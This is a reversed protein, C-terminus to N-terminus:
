ASVTHLGFFPLGKNRRWENMQQALFSASNVKDADAESLPKTRYNYAPDAVTDAFISVASATDGKRLAAWLAAMHPTLPDRARMVFVDEGEELEDSLGPLTTQKNM